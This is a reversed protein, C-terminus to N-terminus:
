FDELTNIQLEMGEFLQNIKVLYEEHIAYMIDDKSAFYQYIYGMSINTKQAIDQIQIATSGEKKILEKAAKLITAVKEKSRKQTPTRVKKNSTNM